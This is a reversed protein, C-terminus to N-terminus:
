FTGLVINAGNDRTVRVVTGTVVNPVSQRRETSLEIKGVGRSFTVTGLSAGDVIVTAVTGNALNAQVEVQLTRKTGDVKYPAKGEPAFGNLIPGTLPVRRDVKQQAHAANPTLVLAGGPALVALALFLAVNRKM